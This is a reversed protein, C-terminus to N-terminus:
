LEDIFLTQLLLDGLQLRGGRKGRNEFADVWGEDFGKWYVELYDEGLPELGAAVIEKAEEFSVNDITPAVIPAYM